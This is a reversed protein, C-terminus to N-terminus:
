RLPLNFRIGVIGGGGGTGGGVGGQNLPATSVPIVPSASSLAAGPAPLSVQSRLGNNANIAQVFYFRTTTDNINPRLISNSNGGTNAPVTAFPLGPPATKNDSEFVAYSSVGGVENWCVQVANPHAITTVLPTSPPFLTGQQQNVTNTLWTAWANITPDAMDPPAGNWPRIPNTPM